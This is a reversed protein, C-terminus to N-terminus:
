KFFGDIVDVGIKTEAQAAKLAAEESESGDDIAGLMVFFVYDGHRVVGSAQVKAMNMPYQLSDSVLKERYENLIKEVAEGQGKKAEVAVFTDVHTSIMPGEAIYSDYLEKDIGFLDKFMQEDYEMNPIYNEGYANKVATHIDALDVSKVETSTEAPTTEAAGGKACASLVTLSAAFLIAYIVKKM